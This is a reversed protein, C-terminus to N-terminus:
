DNLDIDKTLYLIIPFVVLATMGWWFDHNPNM